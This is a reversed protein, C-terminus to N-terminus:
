PRCGSASMARAYEEIKQQLLKNRNEADDRARKANQFAIELDMREKKEIELQEKLEKNEKQLSQICEERQNMEDKKDTVKLDELNPLTASNKCTKNELGSTNLCNKLYTGSQQQHQAVGYNSACLNTPSSVPSKGSDGQSCPVNDYTSKRNCKLDESLTRKHGPSSFSSDRYGNSPTSTMWFDDSFLEDAINNLQKGAVFPKANPMTQTRKRAISKWSEPDDKLLSGEELTALGNESTSSANSDCVNKAQVVGPLVSEETAEWEVFSQLNKQPVPENQLDNAKPFFKEHHIIMLTMLKQIISTSQMMAAPEESKSKLLNVGMVMALNEANMKNEISNKQVEFFFRCLFCLLNYNEKPLLRIQRILEEHGKDENICIKEECGLFADYQCWPVVPEPLERLYLKFLSAVTHVDTDSSFSPREGADFDERLQKVLNDQGPLRFIGEENLGNERIFDVCKEMLIPVSHRGYKKEYTITDALSRGFVAGSVVGAAKRIAKVWEEMEAQTSAMLVHTESASRNQDTSIGPTVEFIFKGDDSSYVEKVQCGPLVICGQYKNDINDKFYYLKQEILSFYKQQWTKVFTKQKKLFGCKIPKESLIPSQTRNSAAMQEGSMMSVSRAIKGLDSKLSFDKPLRLSMKRFRHRELIYRQLTEQM